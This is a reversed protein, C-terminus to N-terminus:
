YFFFFILVCINLLLRSVNNNGPLVFPSYILCWSKWNDAKMNAFNGIVKKNLSEYGSPLQVDDCLHQMKKLNDNSFFGQKKWCDVMRKCTGLLLNHMPDIVTQKVVDFYKLRHLESYRTGNNKELRFRDEPTKAQSWQIAATYNSEKTRLSWNQFNEYGESFDPTGNPFLNFRKDCKNCANTSAHGTFGCVKRSAPIDCTILLLIGYVIVGEPKRHTKMNVGSYLLLLEDVLPALYSNIRDTKAEKGGPMIGVLLINEEKYRDERPISNISLYIAGCSYTVNDFPQFWDVNLSFSISTDDCHFSMGYCDLQKKWMKGDQIDGYYSDNGKKRNTRAIDDEFGPRLFFEKVSSIVSKYPYILIPNFVYSGDKKKQKELIKERCVGGKEIKQTIDSPNRDPHNPYQVFSCYEQIDENM